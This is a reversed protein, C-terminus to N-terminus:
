PSTLKFDAKDTGDSTVVFEETSKTNYREPIANQHPWGGRPPRTDHSGVQAEVRNISVRHTGVVAGKVGQSTALVFDGNDDTEGASTPGAETSGEPAIPFFTVVAGKLPKNNLTVNGSVPAFKVSKSGCGLTLVVAFGLLLRIRM